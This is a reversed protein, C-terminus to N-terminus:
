WIVCFKLMFLLYFFLGNDLIHNIWLSKDALLFNTMYAKWKWKKFKGGFMGHKGGFKGHKGKGHKGHKFKGGHHKLKGHGYGFHGGPNHAGHSLHHAGYAAAAAAAGGALMAGM